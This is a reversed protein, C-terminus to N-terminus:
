DHRRPEPLRSCRHQGIAQGLMFKNVFDAIVPANEAPLTACHGHNGDIYFGFRDGIGLTDYIRQTARARSM